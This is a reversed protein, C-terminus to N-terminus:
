SFIRVPKGSSMGRVQEAIMNRLIAVRL